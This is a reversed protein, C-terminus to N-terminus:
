NRPISVSRRPTTGGGRWLFIPSVEPQRNQLVRDVGGTEWPKHLRHDKERVPGEGVDSNGVRLPHTSEKSSEYSPSTSRFGGGSSVITESSSDPRETRIFVSKFKQYPQVTFKTPLSPSSLRFPELGLLTNIFSDHKIITPVLLWWEDDKTSM